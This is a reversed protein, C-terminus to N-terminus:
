KNISSCLSTRREDRVIMLLTMLAIPAIGPIMIWMYGYSSAESQHSQVLVMNEQVLVMNEQVLVMNEQVLYELFRGLM